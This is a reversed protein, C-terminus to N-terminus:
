MVDNKAFTPPLGHAFMWVCYQLMSSGPEVDQTPPAPKMVFGVRWNFPTQVSEAATGSSMM